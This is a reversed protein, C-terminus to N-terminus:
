GPLPGKSAGAGAAVALEEADVKAGAMFSGELMAALARRLRPTGRMSRPYCLVEEPLSAVKALREQLALLPAGLPCRTDCLPPPQFPSALRVWSPISEAPRALQGPTATGVQLPGCSLKNEAVSLIINSAERDQPTRCLDVPM